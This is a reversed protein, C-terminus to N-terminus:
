FRSRWGRLFDEYADAAELWSEPSFPDVVDALSKVPGSPADAIPAARASYSPSESPKLLRPDLGSQVIEILLEPVDWGQECAWVLTSRWHQALQALVSMPAQVLAHRLTTARRVAEIGGHWIRRGAVVEVLDLTTDGDFRNMEAMRLFASLANVLIDAMDELRVARGENWPLARELMGRVALEMPRYALVFSASRGSGQVVRLFERATDFKPLPTDVVTHFLRGFGSKVLTTKGSAPMGMTFLVREGRSQVPLAMREHFLRGPLTAVARGAHAYTLLPNKERGPIVRLMDDGSVYAGDWTEPDSRYHELAREPDRAFSQAMSLISAVEPDFLEDPPPPAPM